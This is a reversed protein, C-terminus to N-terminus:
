FVVFLVPCITLAENVAQIANLSFQLSSTVVSVKISSWLRGDTVKVAAAHMGQFTPAACSFCTGPNSVLEVGITLRKRQEVSLGSVGPLGTIANRLSTLEMLELVQGLSCM